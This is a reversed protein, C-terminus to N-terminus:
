AGGKRDDGVVKETMSAANKQAGDQPTPQGLNAQPTPQEAGDQPPPPSPLTQQQLNRTREDQPQMDQPQAQNQTDQLAASEQPSAVSVSPKGRRFISVLWREFKDQYKFSLVALVICVAFVVAWVAIGWGSFPIVSGSGLYCYAAIIFPRVVIMTALFFIFNMGTLGAIMCLIDDPFFPLIQMLVFVFKGRNGIYSTYKETTEKGAIWEVVRKGFLKGIFYDILSGVVVGVSALVTALFAGWIRSGPVYCVVAPIPLIVVQLIQILIYVAMSWAGASRIMAVMKEIKEGDSPVEALRGLVSTLMFVVAVIFVCVVLIFVTKFIVYKKLFFSVSAGLIGAGSAAYCAALVLVGWGSMLFHTGLIISVCLLCNVSLIAVANKTKM